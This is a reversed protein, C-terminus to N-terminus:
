IEKVAEIFERGKRLEELYLIIVATNLDQHLYLLLDLEDVDAKNGISIFKSFGFDRDAAFDLVATCLAGSQSIFSINGCAPMRKSFSANLSVEPVPNIVGLCNPGVLRVGAKRCVSVIENEIALGEGGVERFGASVIVIGKVGKAVSEEVATLCAKPPLILISLDIKDSIATITPYTKVSLISKSKPNVPYLTGQFGGQLINAFIDHGVKGPTGSAGIIAVSEPSFIADLNSM